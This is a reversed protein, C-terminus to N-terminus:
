CLMLQTRYSSLAANPNAIYHSAETTQSVSARAAATSTFVAEWMEGMAVNIHYTAEKEQTPRNSPLM